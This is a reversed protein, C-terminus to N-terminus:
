CLRLCFIKDIHLTNIKTTLSVSTGTKTQAEHGSTPSTPLGFPFLFLLFFLCWAPECREHSTFLCTIPFRILASGRRLPLIPYFLVVAFILPSVGGFVSFLLHRAITYTYIVYIYVLFLIFVRLSLYYIFVCTFPLSVFFFFFPGLRYLFHFLILMLISSYITSEHDFIIM